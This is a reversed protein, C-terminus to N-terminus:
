ILRNDIAVGYCTFHEIVSHFTPVYGYIRIRHKVQWPNLLEPIRDYRGFLQLYKGLGRPIPTGIHIRSDDQCAKVAHTAPFHESHNGRTVITATDERDFTCPRHYSCARDDRGAFRIVGLPLQQNGRFVTFDEGTAGNSSVQYLKRRTDQIVAESPKERETIHRGHAKVIQPVGISRPHKRLVYIGLDDAGNETMGVHSYRKVYVGM